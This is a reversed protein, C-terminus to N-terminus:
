KKTRQDKNHILNRKKITEDIHKEELEAKTFDGYQLVAEKPTIRDFSKSFDISSYIYIRLTKNLKQPM